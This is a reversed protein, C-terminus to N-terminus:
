GSPAFGDSDGRSTIATKDRESSRSVVVAALAAAMALFALWDGFRVWLTPVDANFQLSGYLVTEELQETTQGKQGGATIFTSKGTISAYATELGIAAANVRVMAMAQDTAPSRGYSSTNTTVVMMQAGANATSRM